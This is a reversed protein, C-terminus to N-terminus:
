RRGPEPYTSSRFSGSRNALRDPDGDETYWIPRARNSDSVDSAM